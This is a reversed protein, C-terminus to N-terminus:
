RAAEAYDLFDARDPHLVPPATLASVTAARGDFGFNDGDRTPGSSFPDPAPGFADFPAHFPDSPGSAPGPPAPQAHPPAAPADGFLDRAEEASLTTSTPLAV